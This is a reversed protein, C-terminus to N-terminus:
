FRYGIGLNAGAWEVGIGLEAFGYLKSGFSVGVPIIQFAFLKSMTNETCIKDWKYIGIGGQLEGYLTCKPHSMYNFRISPMLAYSQLCHTGKYERSSDTTKYIKQSMYGFSASVGVGLWKTLYYRGSVNLHLPLTIDMKSELGDHCKEVAASSHAIAGFSYPFLLEFFNVGSIGANIEFTGSLDRTFAQGNAQPAAFLLVAALSIVIQSTKKM